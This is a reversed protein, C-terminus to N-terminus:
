RWGDESSTAILDATDYGTPDDNRCSAFLTLPGHTLITVPDADSQLSVSFPVTTVRVKPGAMANASLLAVSAATLLLIATRVPADEPKNIQNDPRGSSAPSPRTFMRIPGASPLRGAGTGTVGIGVQGGAYPARRHSGAIRGGAGATVVERGIVRSSM